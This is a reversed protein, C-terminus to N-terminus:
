TEVAGLQRQLARKDIKHSRGQEPLSALVIRDPQASADFRLPGERVAVKVRALLDAGDASAEPEIALIVREDALGPDFDGVMAARRVGPIREALPEYLAPYINHEGRIIMDSARGLLVIRGEADIEALDGTRHEHV